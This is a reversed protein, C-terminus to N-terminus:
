AFEANAYVKYHNKTPTGFLECRAPHRIKQSSENLVYIPEAIMIAEDIRETAHTVCLDILGM